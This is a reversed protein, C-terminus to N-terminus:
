CGAAAHPGGGWNPHRALPTVTASMWPWFPLSTLAEHLADADPVRWISCSARRGPLRWLGTIIGLNQLEQSREAERLRLSALEEDPLPPVDFDLVVLYENM